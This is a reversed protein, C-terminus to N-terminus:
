VVNKLSCHNKIKIFDLTNAEKITRSKWTRGLSYQRGWPPLTQRWCRRTYYIKFSKTTHHPMINLNRENENEKKKKKESDDIANKFSPYSDQLLLVSCKGSRRAPGSRGPAQAQSSCFNWDHCFFGRLLPSSRLPAQQVWSSGAPRAVFPNSLCLSPQDCWILPTFFLVACPLYECPYEVMSMQMWISLLSLTIYIYIYM